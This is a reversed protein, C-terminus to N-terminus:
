YVYIPETLRPSPPAGAARSGFRKMGACDIANTLEGGRGTISWGASRSMLRPQQLYVCRSSAASCYARITARTLRRHCARPVQGAMETSSCEESLLMLYSKNYKSYRRDQRTQPPQYGDRCRVTFSLRGRARGLSPGAVTEQQLVACGQTVGGQTM